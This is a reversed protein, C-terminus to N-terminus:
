AKSEDLVVHRMELGDPTAGFVAYYSAHTPEKFADKRQEFFARDYWNVGFFITMGERFTKNWEWDLLKDLHQLRLREDSWRLMRVCTRLKSEDDFHITVETQAYPRRGKGAETGALIMVRERRGRELLAITEDDLEPVLAGGINLIDPTVSITPESSFTRETKM